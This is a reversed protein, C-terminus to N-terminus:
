ELEVAPKKKKAPAKRKAAKRAPKKVAGNEALGDSAAPAKARKAAPAPRGRRGRKISPGMAARTALLELAQDKTLTEAATGKPLSANTVGDNLYPGYRGELLQIKQGTVPSEDFM